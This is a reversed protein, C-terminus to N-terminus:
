LCRFINVFYFKNKKFKNVVEGKVMIIYNRFYKFPGKRTGLAGILDAANSRYPLSVSISISFM